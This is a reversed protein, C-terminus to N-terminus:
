LYIDENNFQELYKKIIKIGKKGNINVRDGNEPNVIFQYGGGKSIKNPIEEIENISIDIEKEDLNYDYLIEFPINSPDITENIYELSKIFKDKIIYGLESYFTKGFYDSILHEYKWEFLEPQAPNIDHKLLFCIDKIIHPMYELPRLDQIWGNESYKKTGDKNIQQSLRIIEDRWNDKIIDIYKIQQYNLNQCYKIESLFPQPNPISNPNPSIFLESDAFM